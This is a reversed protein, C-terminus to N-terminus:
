KESVNYSHKGAADGFASPVANKGINNDIMKLYQVIIQPM